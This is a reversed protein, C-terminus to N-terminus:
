PKSFILVSEGRIARNRAGLLPNFIIREFQFGAEECFQKTKLTTPIKKGSVTSDGVVIALKGGPKLAWYILAISRRLDEYYVQVRRPSVLQAFERAYGEMLPEYSDYETEAFLTSQIGNARGASM